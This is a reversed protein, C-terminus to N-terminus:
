RYLVELISSIGNDAAYIFLALALGAVLTLFTNSILEQRSPWHVKKMEKSVETLYNTAKAAMPPDPNHTLRRPRRPLQV